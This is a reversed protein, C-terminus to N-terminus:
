ENELTVYPIEEQQKVAFGCDYSLLCGVIEMTYHHKLM